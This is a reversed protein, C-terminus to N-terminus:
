LMRRFKEYSRELAEIGPLKKGALFELAAGGGTSLHAITHALHFKRLAEATEGGGVISTATLSGIFRGIDKTAGSFKVWEFYGLPGNWVITRGKRLYQKFLKVTEPGLDLAIQQNQIQNYAVIRTPARSSFSEAVVFDVPLIIKRSINQPLINRAIEVSQPSSKSMGVPIGKAKLFPFALAGGILVYDAKHLAQQLLDVKDLKAGGMLWISPREPHLAKRLYMIEKELLLGPFAPLFRTIADVSAHNRHSVAFADNVYIEALSALSHAFIPNNKEEQQYFRLNELFFIEREKKKRIREKIERGICDDLKIIKYYPLLRQLERVLPNLRLHAVVKGDPQGLHTALIVTCSQELLYEITPLTAKMRSNGKIIGNDLPVNFDVRVLVTKGALPCQKLSFLKAM